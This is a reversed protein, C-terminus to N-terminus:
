LELAFTKNDKNELLGSIIHIPSENKTVPARIAISNIHIDLSKSNMLNDSDMKETVDCDEEKKTVAKL